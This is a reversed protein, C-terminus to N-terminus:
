NLEYLLSMLESPFSGMWVITECREIALRALSHAIVNCSKHAYQSNVNDFGKVLNQIKSIVWFIKIGSGQRNNMLNVVEQSDSEIVLCSLGVQGAIQLGLEMAEEMAFAVDGNFKSSKIAAAIVNGFEDRIVAGLEWGQSKSKQTLPQM